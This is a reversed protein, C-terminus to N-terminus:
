NMKSRKILFPLLIQEINENIDAQILEIKYSDCKSKIDNLWNNATKQYEQQIEAPSVKMETGTEIDVFAYPKNDLELNIEKALDLPQIVVVENNAYKIHNLADILEDNTSNTDMLDSFIIVLSRKHIQRAINHLAPVLSTEIFNNKKNSLLSELYDILLSAHLPSSKSESQYVVDKNIEVLSLADRQKNLLQIFTSAAIASFDLKSLGNSEYRMSSSSDIIIHCRLNTEENYEKIYLKDTKNYLKWDIHKTSEGSIYPKHEAFEVSFGKFPSKHLGILFGEVAQKAYFKLGGYQKVERLDISM